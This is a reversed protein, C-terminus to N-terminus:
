AGGVLRGHPRTRTAGPRRDARQPPRGEDFPHDRRRFRVDPLHPLGFTLGVTVDGAAVDGHITLEPNVAQFEQLFAQCRTRCTRRSSWKGACLTNRAQVMWPQTEPEFNWPRKDARQVCVFALEDGMAAPIHEPLDLRGDATVEFVVGAGDPLDQVLLRDEGPVVRRNPWGLKEPAAASSAWSVVDVVRGNTSMSVAVPQFRDVLLFHSRLRTVYWPAFTRRRPPTFRSLLSGPEANGSM